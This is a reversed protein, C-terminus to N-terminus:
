IYDLLFDRKGTMNEQNERVKIFKLMVYRKIDTEIDDIITEDFSEDSEM